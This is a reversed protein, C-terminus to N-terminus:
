RYRQHIANTEILYNLRNWSQQIWVEDRKGEAIVITQPSNESVSGNPLFRITPLNSVPRPTQPQGKVPALNVTEITLEEDLSFEVAKSDIENYTSDQRLGYRGERPDIWLEVPTGESVARSQAYRTMSLFRRAESNLTRGHFFRSLSPASVGLVIVLLAMVLILEILTFAANAPRVSRKQGTPLM